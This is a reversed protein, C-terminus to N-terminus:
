GRPLVPPSGVQVDVVAWRPSSTHRYLHVVDPTAADKGTAVPASVKDSSIVVFIGGVCRLPASPTVLPCNVLPPWYM